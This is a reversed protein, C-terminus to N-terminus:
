AMEYALLKFDKALDHYLVVYPVRGLPDVIHRHMFNSVGQVGAKIGLAGPGSCGSVM